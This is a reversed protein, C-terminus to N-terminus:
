GDGALSSCSWNSAGAGGNWIRTAIADQESKPAQYAQATSGGFQKWTAAEIQYYGSAGASNPPLDQGGSECQVIPWPIAFSTGTPASAPPVALTSLERTLQRQLTQGQARTSQLESAQVQRANALAAQRSSLADQMSQLASSESATAATAGAQETSLAALRALAGAVASRDARTRNVARAVANSERHLFNVRDLLDGFGRAQMIVGIVDPRGQEYVSVLWTALASRQSVWRARLVGAREREHAEDAQLESMRARQEALQQEVDRVRGSLASLQDGVATLLHTASGVGAALKNARAQAHTIGQRLNGVGESASASGGLAVPLAICAILLLLHCFFRRM